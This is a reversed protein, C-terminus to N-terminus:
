EMGQIIQWLSGKCLEPKCIEWSHNYAHDLIDNAFHEDLMRNSFQSAFEVRAFRWCAEGIRVSWGKGDLSKDVKVRTQTLM